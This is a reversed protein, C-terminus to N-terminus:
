TRAEGKPRAPPRPGEGGLEPTPPAGPSVLTAVLAAISLTLATSPVDVGPRALLALAVAVLGASLRGPYLLMAGSTLLAGLDVFARGPAPVGPVPGPGLELLARSAVVEVARAGDSVGRQATLAGALAMGAALVLAVRGGRRVEATFRAAALSVTVLELGHALTALASARELWVVDRAGLRMVVLRAGIRIAAGLLALLLVLGVARSGSWALTASAGIGLLALCAGALGLSARPDLGMTSALMVFFLVAAGGPVLLARRLPALERTSLASVVLSVLLVSGLLAGLQALVAASLEADRILRDIGATSGPLAAAVLRTVLAGWLLAGVLRLALPATPGFRLASADASPPAATTESTRPEVGLATTM